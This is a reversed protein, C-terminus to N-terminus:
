TAAERIAVGPASIVVRAMPRGCSPRQYRTRRRLGNKLQSAHSELSGGGPKMPRRQTCDRVVGLRDVFSRVTGLCGLNGRLGFLSKPPFRVRSRSSGSESELEPATRGVVLGVSGVAVTPRAERGELRAGLVAPKSSRRPMRRPACSGGQAVAEVRAESEVQKPEAGPRDLRAGAVASEAPEREAGRQEQRM